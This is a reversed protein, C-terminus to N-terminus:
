TRGRHLMNPLTKMWGIQKPISLANWCDAKWFIQNDRFKFFSTSPIRWLYGPRPEGQPDVKGAGSMYLQVAAQDDDILIQEPEIRFYPCRKWTEDIFNALEDRGKMDRGMTFDIFDADETFVALVGEKDMGNFADYYSNLTTQIQERKSTKKM